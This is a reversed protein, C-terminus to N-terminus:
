IGFLQRLCVWLKSKLLKGEENERNLQEIPPVFLYTIGDYVQPNFLPFNVPLDIDVSTIGFLVLRTPQLQVKLLKIDIPQQSHNLIAVDGLSMKCAELIRILFQLHQEPIILDGPFSVLLSIRKNNSGKFSYAITEAPEMMPETSTMGETLEVLTKGYLSVISSAPLILKEFSM